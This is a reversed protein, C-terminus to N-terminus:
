VTPLGYSRTEELWFIFRYYGDKVGGKGQEANQARCPADSFSRLRTCVKLDEVSDVAGGGIRWEVRAAFPFRSGVVSYTDKDSICDWSVGGAITELEAESLNYGEEKALKMMDEPTKCAKAKEQQEPTLDEFKM